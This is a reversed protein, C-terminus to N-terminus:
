EMLFSFPVETLALEDTGPTSKTVDKLSHANDSAVGCTQVNLISYSNPTPLLRRMMSQDPVIMRDSASCELNSKEVLSFVDHCM